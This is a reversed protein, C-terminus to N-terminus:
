DEETCHDTYAIESLSDPARRLAMCVEELADEAGPAKADKAAAYYGAALSPDPEFRIGTQDEYVPDAANADYLRGLAMLADASGAAEGWRLVALATEPDVRECAAMAAMAERYSPGGSLLAARTCSEPEAIPVVPGVPRLKPWLLYAAGGAVALAVLAGAMYLFRRRRGAPPPEIEAAGGTMAEEAAEAPAASGSPRSRTARLEHRKAAPPLRPLDGPWTILGRHRGVTIEVPTFATVAEIVAPGLTLYIGQGDHGSGEPVLPVRSSQWGNEGLYRDAYADRLFLAVQGAGPEGGPDSVDDRGLSPLYLRAYGGVPHEPDPVIRFGASV